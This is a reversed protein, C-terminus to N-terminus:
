EIIRVHEILVPEVPVDDGLKETEHTPVAGIADAVEMGRVVRGFVCYGWGRPSRDRHDLSLNDSLNIYFQSDASHPDSTRAMAITGRVNSLGNDAENKVPERTPREELDPGYGGGQIIWGAIVRHFILGDYFGSRVYEVFNAVTAPAKDPYLELELAGLSTQMHVRVPDASAPLAVLLLLFAILGRM